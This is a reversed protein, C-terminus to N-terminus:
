VMLREWSIVYQNMSGIVNFKARIRNIAHDSIRQQDELSLNDVIELVTLPDDSPLIFGSVGNEILEDIGPTASAFCICGAFMAEKVVNPLREGPKTSLMLFYSAM